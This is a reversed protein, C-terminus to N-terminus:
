HSHTGSWQKILATRYATPVSRGLRQMAEDFQLQKLALRRRYHERTPDDTAAAVLDQLRLVERRWELEPPVFGANKLIKYATRLEEPVATDEELALPKGSGPLDDFAGDLMAEQIKREAMRELFLM